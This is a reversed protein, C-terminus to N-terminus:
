RRAGILSSTTTFTGYGRVTTTLMYNIIAVCLICSMMGLIIGGIVKPSMNQKLRNETPDAKVYELEISRGIKYDTESDTTASGNYTKDGVKFEYEIECKYKTIETTQNKEKRSVKRSICNGDNGIVKTVKGTVETDFNDPLTIVWIGLPLVCSALLVIVVLSMTARVKGIGNGVNLFTNTVGM